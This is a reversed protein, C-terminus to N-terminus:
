AIGGGFIVDDGKIEVCVNETCSVNYPQPNVKTGRYLASIIEGGMGSYVLGGLEQM